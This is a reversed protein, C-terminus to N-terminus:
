AQVKVLKYERFGQLVRMYGKERIDKNLEADGTDARIQSLRKLKTPTAMIYINNIGALRVVKPSIQQNGRGLFFGQNGIVSVAIKIGKCNEAMGLIDDESVDLAVVKKNKLVDVGLLTYEVELVKQVQATTSGPGLVFLHEPFREMEEIMYSALDYKVEDDDVSRYSQKGMQIYHPEYVTRAEGHLKIEWDGERYRDEDLDMIEVTDIGAEGSVFMNFLETSAEPNIGFVGSYMKVGSPIGLIPIDTDVVDFIDRATGDGGCFVILDVKEELFIKAMKKTEDARTEGVGDPSLFVNIEDDPFHEKLLGEGMIGGATLWRHGGKMHKLASEARDSAVPEAGREVAKEYVGDTGKLGVRGGMGAIPNVVFGINM